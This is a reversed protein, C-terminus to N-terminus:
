YLIIKFYQVIKEKNSVNSQSDWKWTYKTPIIAHGHDTIEELKWMFKLEKLKTM